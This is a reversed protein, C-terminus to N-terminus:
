NRWLWCMFSQLHILLLTTSGISFSRGRATLNTSLCAMLNLVVRGHSEHSAMSQGDFWLWMRQLSHCVLSTLGCLGSFYGEMSVCLGSCQNIVRLVVLPISRIKISLTMGSILVSDMLSFLKRILAGRFCWISYNEHLNNPMSWWPGWELKVM